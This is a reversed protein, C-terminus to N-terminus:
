YIYDFAIRDTSLITYGGNNSPTYTITTGSVAIAAKPVRVGNIFFAVKGIPINSMSFTTQGVTPAIEETEMRVVSGITIPSWSTGDFQLLQGTTPVTPSVPVTRLKLVLPLGAVGGLDGALQIKGFSTTTADPTTKNAVYSEVAAVSPYKSSSGTDTTINSSLNATTQAGTVDAVPITGSATMASTGNGKVYGSLTTTGTGGNAVSITEALKANTIIADALDATAITGNKIKDTTVAESALKNTSIAADKIIPAAATTGTGGLDGALQIKGIVTPTANVTANNTVFTEVAAVSPYMSTSGTNAVIDSSLKTVSQADIVDAVPITTSATMASTGNGKVYGSLTTAGTGGKPVLIAEGLKTNTISGDKLDINEITGNAIKVSTIANAAITPADATGSLDGALQIKGKTATTADVTANDTVYTVVAKASPYKVDSTSNASIDTTIDALLQAGTVDAVPITSSATMATTGTGKVYGTLTTAGTGGKAVTITEGIKSNTIAADAVDATAITGDLVKASTVADAALDAAVIAGDAIKASTIANETVTPADATGSLDGSLQIKGKTATTADVTANTTVYTVVAKASPYKIDSTSNASIDTTIDALLQAGTVDAVPITSSATMATTGTGKVYGTLTTAGTGGKAVTITEGIKSNTIAADAVDATAITGDLVKASTVADAALDTATITGDLIKGSTIANAAVTPLAATGSLDGALQIKGKDATTADVTANATVYTVVAKASPYKVDSTSNASIDTTIDALLQAGTVDAVPITSSATMATTGTGKVYGTLTTAGTGGKAVNVTEGIKSNTIAADAVDATAITGDLIKASTVASTALDAATITGDLIKASTIANAAVTPLAATGSLDGALQIKGKDVTTADVTANATVYAEVASISPYKTTSAADTTMNTSVNATTQAGTVDAVPITSSATMATTGTGKVYGTLTTAGTGGNAVSITTGNWTGSTITGLTNISSQGVYSTSIDINPVTSANTVSIRNATGNVTTVTGGTSNLTTGSISLGTGLSIESTATGGTSASGLLLSQASLNQIKPLTVAGNSISTAASGGTTTVDGTLAPLTSVPITTLAEVNGTGTASRGLVIGSSVTQMKAFTVKNNGIEPVTASGSLDGALQIKGTASSTANPTAATIQDDVYAKNAADTANSPIDTLTIKKGTPFTLNGAMISGALQVYRADTSSLNSTVEQWNSGDYIFTRGNDDTNSESSLVYIDGNSPSAVVSTRNSLLGTYVTGFPVTVEGNTNPTAGNVKRVAGEVHAAPITSVTTFSAGNSAQKVYGITTSMNAGSGGQNVPIIASGSITGNLVPSTITPTNLSASTSLVVNGTGTVPIERPTTTGGTTNGLITNNSINPLSTLSEIANVATFKNDVYTKVANQTPYSTNSSGLNVNSDKNALNEKLNLATQTSLGVANNVQNEVFTKVALQTPYNTDNANLGDMDTASAKNVLAEAGLNTLAASATTAGTGGNEIAIAGSIKATTITADAIDANIISADLIKDTTIADAALKANTVNLDAIKTTIVAADAIKASTVNADAIKSTTVNSDAIKATTVNADKIDATQVEGDKIKDTTIANAELKANTVNSDAIKVTTINADAIKDTTVAVNALKATTVNADAIKITTVAADNIKASVIGLDKVKFPSASTGAGEITSMDAVAGFSNKELWQVAGNADTM